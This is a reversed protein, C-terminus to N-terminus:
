LFTRYNCCQSVIIIIFFLLCLGEHDNFHLESPPICLDDMYRMVDDLANQPLDRSRSIINVSTRGCRGSQPNVSSCQYTLGYSYNASMYVVKM